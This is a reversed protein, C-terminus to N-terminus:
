RNGKAYGTLRLLQGVAQEAIAGENALTVDELRELSALDLRLASSVLGVDLLIVKMAKDNAGADLPLGRGDTAIM